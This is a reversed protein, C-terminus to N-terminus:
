SGIERRVTRSNREKWAEIEEDTANECFHCPAHGVAACQCGERVWEEARIGEEQEQEINGQDDTGDSEPKSETPPAAEAREIKVIECKHTKACERCLVAWDGLWHLKTGNWGRIMEEPDTTRQYSLNADYFAKSACVDCLRYDAMAM